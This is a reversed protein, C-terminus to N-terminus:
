ESSNPHFLIAGNTKWKRYNYNIKIVFKWQHLKHGKLKKM